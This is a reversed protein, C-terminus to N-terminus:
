RGHGIRVLLTLAGDGNLYPQFMAKVGLRYQSRLRISQELVVSAGLSVRHEPSEYEAIDGYRRFDQDRVYMLSPGTGLSLRYTSNNGFPSLLFTADLHATADRSFLTSFGSQDYWYTNGYGLGLAAAGSVLRNWHHM